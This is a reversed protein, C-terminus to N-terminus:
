NGTTEDGFYIIKGDKIMRYSDVSAGFGINDATKWAGRKFTGVIQLSDYFDIHEGEAFAQIIPLMQKCKERTMFPENILNLASLDINCLYLFYFLWVFILNNKKRELEKQNEERDTAM